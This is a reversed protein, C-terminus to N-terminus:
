WCVFTCYSWYHVVLGHSRRDLADIYHVHSVRGHRWIVRTINEVMITNFGPNCTYGDLLLFSLVAPRYIVAVDSTEKKAYLLM